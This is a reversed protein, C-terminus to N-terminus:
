VALTLEGAWECDNGGMNTGYSQAKTQFGFKKM